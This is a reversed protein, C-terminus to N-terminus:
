ARGRGNGSRATAYEALLQDVHHAITYRAEVMARGRESAATRADDPVFSRIAEAASAPDLPRFLRADPLLGVTELHGGGRAAVVPVGAAMAELVGLGLPEAPAPALFLGARAFEESVAQRWGAFTVERVENARVWDNLDGRQSGDGVIRLTWGEDSLNSAQWARLATLTDKEKELRHM